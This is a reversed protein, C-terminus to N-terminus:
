VCDDKQFASVFVISFNDWFTAVFHVKIRNQEKKKKWQFNLELQQGSSKM